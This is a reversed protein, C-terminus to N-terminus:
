YINLLQKCKKLFRYNLQKAILNKEMIGKLKDCSKEIEIPNLKKLFNNITDHHPIEELEDYGLVKSVNNICEETNFETTMQNMSEIATINKM